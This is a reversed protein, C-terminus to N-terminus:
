RGVAAYKKVHTEGLRGDRLAYVHNRIRSNTTTYIVSYLVNLFEGEPNPCQRARM